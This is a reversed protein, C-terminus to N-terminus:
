SEAKKMEEYLEKARERAKKDREERDKIAQYNAVQKLNQLNERNEDIMKRLDHPEINRLDPM